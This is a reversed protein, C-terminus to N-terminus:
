RRARTEWLDIASAAILAMTGALGVVGVTVQALSTLLLTPRAPDSSVVTLWENGAGFGFCLLTVCIGSLLVGSSLAM